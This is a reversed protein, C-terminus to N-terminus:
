LKFSESSLYIINATKWRDNTKIKCMYVYMCVYMCQYTFEHVM